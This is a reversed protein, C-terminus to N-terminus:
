RRGEAVVAEYLGTLAETVASRGFRRAAAGGILEPDYDEIRHTLAALADALREPDGPEVVIGNGEDVLHEAGGCRTTVVPRGSALAEAVVVGASESLSPLVLAHSARLLEAIRSRPQPGHFEVADAVGLRAAQREYSGLRPGGGVLDARLNVDGERRLRALAELLVPVGKRDTDMMGVFAVRHRGDTKPLPTPSFRRTDVVNPVTVVRGTTRFSRELRERQGDGVAVVADARRYAVAAMWRLEPRRIWPAFSDVHETLVIPLRHARRLAVVGWGAPVAVHCHVLDPEFERRVRALGRALARLYALPWVGFRHRLEARHEVYDRSTTSWPELRRGRPVVALHLVRVEHDVALAEVQDRVFIGVTPDGPAPYWSPVVLVRVITM